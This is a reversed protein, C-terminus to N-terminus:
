ETSFSCSPSNSLLTVYMAAAGGDVGQRRGTFLLQSKGSLIRKRM